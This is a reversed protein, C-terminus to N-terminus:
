GSGGVRTEALKGAAVQKGRKGTGAPPLDTRSEHGPLV